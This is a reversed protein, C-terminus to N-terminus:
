RDCLIKINFSLNLLDPMAGGKNLWDMLDKLAELGELNDDEVLADIIVQLTVDPDMNNRRKKQKRRNM